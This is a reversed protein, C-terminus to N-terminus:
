GLRLVESFSMQYICTGDPDYVRVLWGSRDLGEDIGEAMLSRAGKITERKVAALDPLDIPDLMEVGAPTQNVAPRCVPPLVCPLPSRSCDAPSSVALSGHPGLTM